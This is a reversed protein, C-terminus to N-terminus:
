RVCLLAPSWSCSGDWHLQLGVSISEPFSAQRENGYM